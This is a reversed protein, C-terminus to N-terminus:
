LRVVFFFGGDKKWCHGRPNEPVNCSGFRVKCRCPTIPVEKKKDDFCIRCCRDDHTECTATTNGSARGERQTKDEISFPRRRHCNKKNLLHGIFSMKGQFSKRGQEVANEWISGGDQLKTFAKKSVKEGRGGRM